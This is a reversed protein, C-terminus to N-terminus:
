DAHCSNCQDNVTEQKVMAHSLSGHPNHCDTCRVKGELIPHHSPKLLASRIDQHCKGCTNAEIQRSTTEFPAVAPDRQKLAVRTPDPALPGHIDHCNNCAVENKAHKGSEWFALHRQGAHCNLCIAAREDATATKFRNVMRNKMPDQVHASADGHCAQCMSGAADNRAGHATLAISNHPQEHCNACIPTNDAKQALAPTALLAVLAALGAAIMSKYKM